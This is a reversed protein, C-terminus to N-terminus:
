GGEEQRGMWAGFSHGAIMVMLPIEELPLTEDAVAAAVHAMQEWPVPPKKAAKLWLAALVLREVWQSRRPQLIKKLIADICKDVDLRRRKGLAKEVVRDVEVDDEFWSYAFPQEEAWAAADELAKERYRTTVFREGRRELEARLAALEARAKFPAAKWQDCGLREAIAVLWHCPVKDQAAGDALAQSIRRNLYDASVEVAGTEHRLMALLENRERKGALPVLFADAIGAGKKPMVSYCLFGTGVPVLVQFTQAMAGDVASGYVTAAVRKPLPACEIRAKRANTVAQDILSRQAEPFWNRAVILRRLSAPTLRNGEVEALVQAVGSRVEAQPHFLMLVAAERITSHEAGLMLRCLNVQVEFDGVSMMQLVAEFFEHPTGAGDQELAELLERLVQEPDAVFDADADLGALMRRRNAEHLLPLIEVRADLLIQTVMAGLQPAVGEAFVHRALAEQWKEMHRAAEPRRRELDVRLIELADRLLGLGADLHTEDGARDYGVLLGALEDAARPNAYLYGRLETQRLNTTEFPAGAERRCREVWGTTGGAVPGTDPFLSGQATVAAKKKRGGAPPTRVAAKLLSEFAELPDEEPPPKITRVVSGPKPFPKGRYAHGDVKKRVEKYHRYMGKLWDPSENILDVFVRLLDAAAAPQRAYENLYPGALPEDADFGFEIVAAQKGKGDVVYLVTRRCDCGPDTCYAEVFSYEGAKAKGVKRPLIVGVVAEEADPFILPYLTMGPFKDISAM